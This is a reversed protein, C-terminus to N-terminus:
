PTCRCWGCRGGRRAGGWRGRAGPRRARCGRCPRRRRRSGSGSGSARGVRSRRGARRPKPTAPRLPPLQRACAVGGRAGRDGDGRARAWGLAHRRHGHQAGGFSRPACGAVARMARRPGRRRERLWQGPLANGDHDTLRITGPTVSAPDISESFTVRSPEDAPAARGPASCRGKAGAPHHAARPGQM